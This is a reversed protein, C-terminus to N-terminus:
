ELITRPTITAKPDPGVRAVTPVKAPETAEADSAISADSHRANTKKNKKKEDYLLSKQHEHAALLFLAEEIM